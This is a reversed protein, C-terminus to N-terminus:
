SLRLRFPRWAPCCWILCSLRIRILLKQPCLVNLIMWVTLVVVFSLIFAWSGAFKAIADAAKAGFSNDKKQQKEPNESVKSEALLKLVEEDSMDHAIDTLVENILNRNNKM